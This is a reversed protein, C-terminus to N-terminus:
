SSAGEKNRIKDELIVTAERLVRDFNGPAQLLDYCRQKLTDDRILLVPEPEEQPWLGSDIFGLARNLMMLAPAQFDGFNLALENNGGMIASSLFDSHRIQRVMHFSGVTVTGNGTIEVIYRTVQPEMRQLQTRLTDLSQQDRDGYIQESYQTFIDLFSQLVRKIENVDVETGPSM